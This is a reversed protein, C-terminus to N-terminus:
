SMVVILNQVLLFCCMAMLFEVQKAKKAKSESATDNAVNKPPTEIIKEKRIQKPPREQIEEKKDIVIIPSNGSEEEKDSDVMEIEERERKVKTGKKKKTKPRTQPTKFQPFVGNLWNNISPQVLKPKGVNM